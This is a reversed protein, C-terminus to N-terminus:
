WYWKCLFDPFNVKNYEFYNKFNFKLINQFKLVNWCVSFTQKRSFGNLFISHSLCFGKQKGGKYFTLEQCEWWNDM